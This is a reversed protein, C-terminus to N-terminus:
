PGLIAIAAPIENRVASMSRAVCSISRPLVPLHGLMVRADFSWM